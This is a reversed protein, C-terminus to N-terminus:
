KVVTVPCYAHQIVKSSVSGLLVGKVAGLGRSGLIILDFGGQKAFDVLGGAVDGQLVARDTEVGAARFLQEVEDLLYEVQGTVATDYVPDQAGLFSAEDRAFPIVTVTTCRGGPIAKLLRVTFEAARLANRSGDSALLIKNVIKKV